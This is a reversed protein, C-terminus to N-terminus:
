NLTSLVGEVVGIFAEARPLLPEGYVNSGDSYAVEFRFIAKEDAGDDRAQKMVRYLEYGDTLPFERDAPSLAIGMPPIDFGPNMRRLPATVDIEVSHHASGAILLQRHKDIIDQFHLEWLLGNGGKYSNLSEVIKAQPASLGLLSRNCCEQFQQPSVCFPFSTNKTPANGNAIVLEFIRLDLTSHLNHILDGFISALEEAPPPHNIKLRYVLDGTEVENEGVAQFPSNRHYIEIVEKLDAFHKKARKLKATASM